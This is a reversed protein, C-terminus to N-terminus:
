IIGPIHGRKPGDLNVVEDYPNGQRHGTYGPPYSSADAQQGIM